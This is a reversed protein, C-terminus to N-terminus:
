FSLFVTSALHHGRNSDKSEPLPDEELELPLVAVATALGAVRSIGATGGAGGAAAGEGAFCAAGAGAAAWAAGAAGAGTFFAGAVTARIRDSEDRAPIVVAVDGSPVM